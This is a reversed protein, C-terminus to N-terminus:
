LALRQGMPRAEVGALFSAGYLRLEHGPGSYAFVRLSRDDARDSAYGIILAPECLRELGLVLDAEDTGEADHFDQSPVCQFGLRVKFPFLGAKTLHGYLNPEDGLTAWGYGKERAVNMATFYLTRALSERRWEETVASFRIRIAGQDPCELVVCGGALEGDQEALVAFYKEDGRLLRERQQVAIPIGYAMDEVRRGYLELFRDLLGADLVDHVTIDLTHEARVRSRRVNQRAKKNLGALFETETSNLEAVWSLLSPKRVFGEAVLQSWVEPGPQSLRVVDIHEATQLWPRSPLEDQKIYAVSLGHYDTIEM